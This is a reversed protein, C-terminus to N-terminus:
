IVNHPKRVHNGGYNRPLGRPLAGGPTKERKRLFKIAWEDVNIILKDIYVQMLLLIIPRGFLLFSPRGFLLFSPRGFFLILRPIILVVISLFNSSSTLYIDMSVPIGM